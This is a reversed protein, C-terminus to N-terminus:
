KLKEPAVTAVSGTLDAKKITGYGIVVVDDLKKIDESLSVNIVKQSASKEITSYGVFSFAIVAKTDTADLAFKGDADTVTGTTTGKVMVTVGPLPTGNSDTVKGTVKVPAANSPNGSVSQGSRASASAGPSFVVAGVILLLVAQKKFISKWKM